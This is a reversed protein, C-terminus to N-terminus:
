DIREWVLCVRYVSCFLIQFFNRFNFSLLVSRLLFTQLVWSLGLILLDWVLKLDSGAWGRWVGFLCRVMKPDGFDPSMESQLPELVRFRFFSNLIFHFLCIYLYGATSFEFSHPSPLALMNSKSGLIWPFLEPLPHSPTCLSSYMMQSRHSELVRHYIFVRCMLWFSKWWWATWYLCWDCLEIYQM